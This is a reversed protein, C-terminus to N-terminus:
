DQPIKMNCFINIKLIQSIPAAGFQSKLLALAYFRSIKRETIKM